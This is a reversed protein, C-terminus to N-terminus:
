RVIMKTSKSGQKKVYIGPALNSGNVKIGEITFYETPTNALNTGETNSIGTSEPLVLKFKGTMNAWYLSTYPVDIFQLYLAKPPFTIVNNERKGFVGRADVQAATEGDELYRAARSWLMLRGFSFELGCGNEMKHIFVRNPDTADIEMYYRRSTDYNQDNSYYYNLGYPDVLRFLGPKETSEQVSVETTKVEIGEIPNECDALYGDTYMATGLDKWGEHLFTLEDTLYAAKKAEGKYYPVAVFSFQGDQEYPFLYEGSQALETSPTTGDAISTAMESTYSGELMAVKVKEVDSSFSFNTSVFYKGDKETVGKLSITVDLNPAGPLRVRFKGSSNAYQYIGEEHNASILLSRKPFTIEGDALTGCLGESVAQTLNGNKEYYDGAISNIYMSGSGWNMGTDYGHFYVKDPETANIEMYTDGTFSAPSLPYNKYPSVLRYLGPTATNEQVEVEFEYNEVIFLTTVLDDRFLGKGLSKWDGESAKAKKHPTGAYSNLSGVNKHTPYPQGAIPQFALIAFVTMICKLLHTTM